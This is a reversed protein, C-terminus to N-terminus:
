PVEEAEESEITVARVLDLDFRVETADPPILLTTQVPRGDLDTSLTWTGPWLDLHFGNDQDV